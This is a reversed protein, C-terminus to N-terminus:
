IKISNNKYMKLIEYIEKCKRRCERVFGELIGKSSWKLKMLGPNIVLKTEELHKKFLKKETEDMSDIIMNYDRVVLMVFERLIRLNEKHTLILEDAYSPPAAGESALKKWVVTEKILKYVGKDFNSELHGSKSV